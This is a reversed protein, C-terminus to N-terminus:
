HLYMLTFSLWPFYGKHVGTFIGCGTATQFADSVIKFWVFGETESISVSYVHHWFATFNAGKEYAGFRNDHIVEAGTLFGAVHQLLYPNFNAEKCIRYADTKNPDGEYTPRIHGSLLLFAVTKYWYAGYRSPEDRADKWLGSVPRVTQKDIFDQIAKPLQRSNM